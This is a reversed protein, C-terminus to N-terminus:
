KTHLPEQKSEILKSDAKDIRLWASKRKVLFYCLYYVCYIWLLGGAIPYALQIKDLHLPGECSVPVYFAMWMISLSHFGAAFSFNGYFLFPLIWILYHPSVANSFIYFGLYTYVIRELLSIKRFLFLYSIGLFLIFAYIGYSKYLIWISDMVNYSISSGIIHQFFMGLAWFLGLFGWSCVIFSRYLIPLIGNPHFYSLILLSITIPALAICLFCIKKKKSSFHALFAPLLFIPFTKAYIGLGLCLAALHWRKEDQKLLLFAIFSFFTPIIGFQGLLTSISIIIPSFVLILAINQRERMSKLPFLLILATFLIDTLVSPMKVMFYLPMSTLISIHKCLLLIYPYFPPYQLTSTSLPHAPIEYLSGGSYVIEAANVFGTVDCNGYEYYALFIRIALAFFIALCISYKSFPRKNKLLFKQWFYYICAFLIAVIYYFGVQSIKMLFNDVSFQWQPM